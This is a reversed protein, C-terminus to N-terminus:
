KQKKNWEPDFEGKAWRVFEDLLKQPAQPISEISDFLEILDRNPDEMKGSKTPVGRIPALRNRVIDLCSQGDCGKASNM